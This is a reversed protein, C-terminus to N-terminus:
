PIQVTEAVHKTLSGSGDAAATHETTAPVGVEVLRHVAAPCRITDRIYAKELNETAIFISYLDAMTEFSEREQNSTYLRVE